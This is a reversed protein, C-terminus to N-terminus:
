PEFVVSIGGVQSAFTWNELIKGFGSDLRNLKDKSFILSIVNIFISKAPVEKTGALPSRFLKQFDPIKEQITWCKQGLNLKLHFIERRSPHDKTLHLIEEVSDM